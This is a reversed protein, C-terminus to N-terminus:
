LLKRPGPFSALNRYNDLTPQLAPQALERRIALFEDEYGDYSQIGDVRVLTLLFEIGGGKRAKEFLQDFDSASKPQEVDM